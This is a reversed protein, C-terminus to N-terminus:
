FNGTHPTRFVPTACFNDSAISFNILDSSSLHTSITSMRRGIWELGDRVQLLLFQSAPIVFNLAM